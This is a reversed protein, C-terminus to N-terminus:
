VRPLDTLDAIVAAKKELHGTNVIHALHKETVVVDCHAVAAGVYYWDNLDSERVPLQPNRLWQMYLHANVRASPLQDVFCMYGEYRKTGARESELGLAAFEDVSIGHLKLACLLEVFIDRLVHAYVTQRRVADSAHGLERRLQALSEMFQKGPASLDPRNRWAPGWPTTGTLVGNALVRDAFQELEVRMSEPMVNDPDDLKFEVGPRALAHALGKSVLTFPRVALRRQFTGALATDIEFRLVSEPSALTRGDSIEWMFQGLRGHQGADRRKSTEVYHALSLPFLAQGSSKLARVCDVIPLLHLNRVGHIAQALEIWKNQDLYIVRAAM